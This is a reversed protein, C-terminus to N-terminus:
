YIKNKCWRRLLLVKDILKLVIGIIAPITFFIFTIIFPYKHFLIFFIVTLSSILSFFTLTISLLFAVRVIKQLINITGTNFYIYLNKRKFRFGVARELINRPPLKSYEFAPTDENGSEYGDDVYIENRERYVVREDESGDPSHSM